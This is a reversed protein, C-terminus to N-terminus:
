KKEFVGAFVVFEGMGVMALFFWVCIEAVLERLDEGGVGGM